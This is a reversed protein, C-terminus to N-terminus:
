GSDSHVTSFRRSLRVDHTVIESEMPDAKGRNQAGAFNKNCPSNARVGHRPFVTNTVEAAGLKDETTDM